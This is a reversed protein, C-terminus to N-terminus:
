PRRKLSKIFELIEILQNNNKIIHGFEAYDTNVNIGHKDIHAICVGCHLIDINYCKREIIQAKLKSIELDLYKAFIEYDSVAQLPLEITIRRFKTDM